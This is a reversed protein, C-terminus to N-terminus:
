KKQLRMETWLEDIHTMGETDDWKTVEWEQVSEIIKNAALANLVDAQDIDETGIDDINVIIVHGDVCVSITLLKSKVNIDWGHVPLEVQFPDHTLPLFKM